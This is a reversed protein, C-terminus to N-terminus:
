KKLNNFNNLIFKLPQLSINKLYEDMDKINNFNNKSEMYFLKKGGDISEDMIHIYQGIYDCKDELMRKQPNRGEYGIKGPHINIIPFNNVIKKPLIKEYGASFMLKYDNSSLMRYLTDNNDFFFIPLNMNKCRDLLHQKLKNTYVIFNYNNFLKSSYMKELLNGSRSTLYIIREKMKFIDIIYTIQYNKIGIQSM